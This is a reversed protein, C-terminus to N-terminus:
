WCSEARKQDSENVMIPKLEGTIQGIPNIAPITIEQYAFKGDDSNQVAQSGIIDVLDSLACYRHSNFYEDLAKEDDTLVYRSPLLNFETAEVDAATVLVSHEATKGAQYLSLIDNTNALQRRIRKSKDTFHDGSADIMLISKDKKHKDIVVINIPIGSNELSGAPLAIVAKLQNQQLVDQKFQREGATTRFLFADPVIAIVIDSAHAMLHRVQYVESTNSKEPFRSWIDNMLAKDAKQNFGLMAVASQFQELGGEGILTPKVLPNTCKVEFTKDRLYSVMKAIFVDSLEETEGKSVSHNPLANAFEYGQSFPCYVKDTHKGLLQNVLAVVDLPISMSERNELRYRSSLAKAIEDFNIVKAMILHLMESLFEQLVDEKIKVLEADFDTNTETKIYEAISEFRIGELQKQAQEGHQNLQMKLWVSSATTVYQIFVDPTMRKKVVDRHQDLLRELQRNM